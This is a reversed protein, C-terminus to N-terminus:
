NKTPREQICSAPANAQARVLAAQLPELAQAEDQADTWEEVAHMLETRENPTLKSVITDLRETNDYM